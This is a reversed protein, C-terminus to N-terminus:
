PHAPSPAIVNKIEDCQKSGSELRNAASDLMWFSLFTALICAIDVVMVATLLNIYLGDAKPIPSVGADGAAYRYYNVCVHIGAGFSFLLFAINPIFYATRWCRLWRHFGNCDRTGNKQTEETGNEAIDNSCYASRESRATVKDSLLSHIGAIAMYTARSVSLVLAIITFFDVMDGNTRKGACILYTM